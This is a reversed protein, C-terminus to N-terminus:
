HAPKSKRAARQAALERGVNEHSVVLGRDADSLGEQILGDHYEQIALYHDIAENLIFTRDRQLAEALADIKELKPSPTRFSVPKMNAAPM